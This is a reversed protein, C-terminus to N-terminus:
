LRLAAPGSRLLDLVEAVDNLGLMAVQEEILIRMAEAQASPKKFWNDIANKSLKRSHGPKCGYSSTVGSAALINAVEKFATAKSVSRDILVQSAAKAFAERNLRGVSGFGAKTSLAKSRGRELPSLNDCNEVETGGRVAMKLILDIMESLLVHAPDNPDPFLGGFAALAGVAEEQADGFRNADIANIFAAAHLSIAKRVADPQLNEPLTLISAPNTTYSKPENSM